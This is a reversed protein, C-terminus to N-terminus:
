LVVDFYGKIQPIHTYSEAQKNLRGLKLQSLGKKKRILKLLLIQLQDEGWTSGEEIGRASTLVTYNHKTTRKDLEGILTGSFCALIVLVKKGKLKDTEDLLSSYKITGQKLAFEGPLGHSTSYILTLTEDDTLPILSNISELFKQWQQEHPQIRVVQYSLKKRFEELEEKYGTKLFRSLDKDEDTLKGSFIAELEYVRQNGRNFVGMNHGAFTDQDWNNILIAFRKTPKFELLDKPLSMNESAAIKKLLDELEKLNETPKIQRLLRILTNFKEDQNEIKKLVCDKVEKRNEQWYWVKPNELCENLIKIAKDCDSM